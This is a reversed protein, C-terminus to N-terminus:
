YFRLLYATVDDEQPLTGRFSGLDQHLGDIAEQPSGEHHTRLRDYVRQLGFEEGAGNVAEVLRYYFPTQGAFFREFQSEEAFSRLANVWAHLAERGLLAEEASGGPDLQWKLGPPDSLCLAIYHYVDPWPHQSMLSHLLHVARHQRFPFFCRLLEYLYPSQYPTLSVEASLLQVTTLLELRPDVAVSLTKRGADLPAAGCLLLLVALRKM